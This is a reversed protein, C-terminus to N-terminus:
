IFLIADFQVIMKGALNKFIILDFDNFQQISEVYNSSFFSYSIEFSPLNYRM